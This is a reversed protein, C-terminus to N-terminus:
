AILEKLKSKLRELEPLLQERETEKAQINVNLLDISQTLSGVREYVVAYEKMALALDTTHQSSTSIAVEDAQAM